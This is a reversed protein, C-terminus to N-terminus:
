LLSKLAISGLLAPTSKLVPSTTTPELILIIYLPCAVQASSITILLNIGGLLVFM